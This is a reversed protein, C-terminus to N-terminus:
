NSAESTKFVFEKQFIYNYVLAVTIATIAKSVMFDLGIIDKFCYTGVLNLLSSGIWVLMYRFWQYLVKDDTNDFVWNRSVYFNILAGAALGTINAYVYWTGFIKVLLYAVSFDVTTAILSSLQSRIYTSSMIIAM